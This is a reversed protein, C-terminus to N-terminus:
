AFSTLARVTSEGDFLVGTSKLFALTELMIVLLALILLVAFFTFGLMYFGVVVIPLCGVNVANVDGLAEGTFFIFM